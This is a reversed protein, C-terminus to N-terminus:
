HFWSAICCREGSTVPTVEHQLDSRFAVLLGTSATLPFGYTRWAPDDITGYLVLEGGCYVDPGPQEAGDNLFIVVSVRRRELEHPAGRRRSQDQHARYYDGERYVLLQPRECDALPVHFHDELYRKVARLRQHIRALSVDSADVAQTRRIDRDIGTRFNGMFVTADSRPSSSMETRLRRCTSPALFRRRTYVGVRAFFEPCPM